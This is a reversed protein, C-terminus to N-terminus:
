KKGSGFFVNFYFKPNSFLSKRKDINALAETLQKRIYSASNARRVILNCLRPYTSLKQLLSSLKFEKWMASYIEKDYNVTFTASFDKAAHCALVQKAAFRGSRISNAIGEGTFPDIL